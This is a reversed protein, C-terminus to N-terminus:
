LAKRNHFIACYGHMVVGDQDKTPFEEEHTKTLEGLEEECTSVVEKAFQVNREGRSFIYITRASQRILEKIKQLYINPGLEVNESRAVLVVTMKINNRIFDCDVDVGREKDAIKKLLKIFESTEFVTDGTETIGARRIGLEMLEKLLVRTFLGREDITDIVMCMEKLEEDQNVQPRLVTRIFHGLSSRAETFSFLAKKTMMLDIAQGLKTHIHPRAEPIVAKNMYLMTARALNEDKNQHYNLLVVVRDNEIFADKSMDPSIWKVKLGFPLLEQMETNISSIFSDVKSQIGSATATKEATKSARAVLISLWEVVREGKDQHLVFLYIALWIFIGTTGFIGILLYLLLM